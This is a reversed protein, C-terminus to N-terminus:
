PEYKGPIPEQDKTAATARKESELLQANVERLDNERKEIQRWCKM